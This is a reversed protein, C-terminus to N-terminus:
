CHIRIRFSDKSRFIFEMLSHSGIARCGSMVGLICWRSPRDPPSACKDRQVFTELYRAISTSRGVAHRVGLPSSLVVWGPVYQSRSVGFLSHLVFVLSATLAIGCDFGVTELEQACPAPLTCANVRGVFKFNWGPILRPFLSM